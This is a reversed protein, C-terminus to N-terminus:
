LELRKNTRQKLRYRNYLLAVIIILLAAVGLSINRLVAGQQLKSKQLEDKKTLLQINQEKLNILADKQETAYSIKLDEIQATKRATSMSDKILQFNQLHKIASIYNGRASDLKFLFHSKYSQGLDGGSKPWEAVTIKFFKEAKSYQGVKFYFDALFQNLIVNSKIEGQKIRLENLEILDDCYKEAVVNQNLAAYCQALGLLMYNKEWGSETPFMNKKPLVLALAEAVKRLKILDGSLDYLLGYIGETQKHKIRHNLSKLNWEIAERNSGTRSYNFAVREYFQGLYMSDGATKVSKITQLSYYLAKDNRAGAFYLGSLLDYTFCIGPYGGVEQEKAIQLTENIAMNLQGQQYHIDAIEKRSWFEFVRDKVLQYSRVLHELYDLRTAFSYTDNSMHLLYFNLLVSMCSDQQEPSILKPVRQFLTSFTNRIAVVQRPENPDYYFIRELYAEALHFEDNLAQIQTIALNVLKKGADTNGRRRELYAEYLLILGDRKGSAQRANIAKATSIFTASRDLDSREKSRELHYKALRLLINVRVSDDINKYLANHLHAAQQDSLLNKIEAQGSVVAAIHLLFIIIILKTM